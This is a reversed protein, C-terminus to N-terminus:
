LCAPYRIAAAYCSAPPAPCAPSNEHIADKCDCECCRSCNPEGGRCAAQCSSICARLSAACNTPCNSEVTDADRTAPLSITGRAACTTDPNICHGGASLTYNITRADKCGIVMSSGDCSVLQHWHHELGELDHRASWSFGLFEGDINWLQAFKGTNASGFSAVEEAKCDTAPSKWTVTIPVDSVSTMYWNAPIDGTQISTSLGLLSFSAGISASFLAEQAERLRESSKNNADVVCGSLAAFLAFSFPQYLTKMTFGGNGHVGIRLSCPFTNKRLAAYNRRQRASTSLLWRASPYLRNHGRRSLEIMVAFQYPARTLTRRKKCLRAFSHDAYQASTQWNLFTLSKVDITQCEPVRKSSCVACRKSYGRNRARAICHRKKALALM